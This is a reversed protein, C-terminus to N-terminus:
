SFALPQDASGRTLVGTPVGSRAHSLRVRHCETAAADVLRVLDPAGGGSSGFGALAPLAPGPAHRPEPPRLWVAAGTSGGASGPLPPAVVRGEAGVATLDPALPRWELWDLLGPLEDAGGAAVLLGMRTGSLLVPGTRVGRRLVAHGAEAPLELVDFSEGTLLHLPNRGATAWGLERAYRRALAADAPGPAADPSSRPQPVAPTM